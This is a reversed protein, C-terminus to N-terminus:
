PGLLSEGTRSVALDISGWFKLVPVIGLPWRSQLGRPTRGVKAQVSFGRSVVPRFHALSSM